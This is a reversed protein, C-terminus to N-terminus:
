SRLKEWQRKYRQFKNSRMLRTLRPTVASIWSAWFCSFLQAPTYHNNIPLVPLSFPKETACFEFWRCGRTVLEFSRCACKQFDFSHLFVLAYLATYVYLNWASSISMRHNSFFLFQERTILQLVFLCLVLFFIKFLRKRVRHMKFIIQLKPKPLLVMLSRHPSFSYWIPPVPEWKIHSNAAIFYSQHPPYSINGIDKQQIYLPKYVLM